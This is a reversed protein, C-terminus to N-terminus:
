RIEEGKGSVSSTDAQGFLNSAYGFTWGIRNVVQSGSLIWADRNTTGREKQRESTEEEMM